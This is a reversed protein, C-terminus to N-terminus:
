SAASLAMVPMVTTQDLEFSVTPVTFALPVKVAMAAPVVFTVAEFPATSPVAATVTVSCAPPRASEAHGITPWSRLCVPCLGYVPGLSGICFHDYLVAPKRM